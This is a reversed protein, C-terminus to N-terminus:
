ADTPRATRGGVRRGVGLVRLSRANLRLPLEGVGRKRGLGSEGLLDEPTWSWSGLTRGTEHGEIGSADLPVVLSYADRKAM